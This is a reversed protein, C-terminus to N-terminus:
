KSGGKIFLRGFFKSVTRNKGAQHLRKYYDNLTDNRYSIIANLTDNDSCEGCLHYKDMFIRAGLYKWSLGYEKLINTLIEQYTVAEGASVSYVKHNLEKLYAICKVFCYGADEKTIWLVQDTKYGNLILSEKMLSLVLPLRLITYNKLKEKILTEAEKKALAYYDYEGLKIKGRYLLMTSAYLLHCKPNYYNIARVINETGKYDIEHALGKKVDALPPLVGALHIICDFDKVLAEILVRNCVDGYIINIRKKYKKLKAVSNNNKLDLATIEYKGESLLYKLVQLGITGAAGTVLIKKM